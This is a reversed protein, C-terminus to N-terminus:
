WSILEASASLSSCFGSPVMVIERGCSGEPVEPGETSARAKANRSRFQPGRFRERPKVDLPFLVSFAVSSAWRQWGTFYEEIPHFACSAAVVWADM